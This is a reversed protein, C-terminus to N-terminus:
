MEGPPPNVPRAPLDFQTTMVHGDGTTPRPPSGPSFPEGPEKGCASLVLTMGAALLLKKWGSSARKWRGDNRRM